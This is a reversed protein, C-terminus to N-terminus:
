NRGGIALRMLGLERGLAESLAQYRTSAAVMTAVEADPDITGAHAQLSPPASAASEVDFRQQVAGAGAHASAINRSAAEAVLLQLQLAQRVADITNDM